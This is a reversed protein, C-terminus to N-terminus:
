PQTTVCASASYNTNNQEDFPVPYAVDNGYTGGRFHTGTPFVPTKIGYVRILRRLDGQRHGTNYLWLAREQFLMARRAEPTGPDTLPALTPSAFVTTGFQQRQDRYLIPLLTAVQSRLNNLIALMEDSRGAFLAAEAEILRAEVGSALPVDSDNTPYNNNIWCTITGSFCAFNAAARGQYPVRPDMLGRFAIGEADTATTAPLTSLNGTGTPQPSGADPRFAVTASVQGGELNSVGYRGNGELQFMPNNEAAVNASHELRFVYGTPVISAPVAAAAEAYKGLNLLARAKGISALRRENAIASTASATAPYTPAFVLAENFRAVATDNMQPTTLPTGGQIDTPDIPGTDPIRSFPVAGCWGESLTVYVYAEISRLRARSISDAAATAPLTFQEVVAFARRANFRAQQLRNFAPDSINTLVPAQLNRKDAAERTTFTDGYYAEDSIVASSSLFSDDGFGSYGGVFQRFAGNVLAPVAAANNLDEPRLQAPDEVAVLEDTDCAAMPLTLAGALLLAPLPRLGKRKFNYRTM